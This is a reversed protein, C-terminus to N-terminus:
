SDGNANRARRLVLKEVEAKVKPHELIPLELPDGAARIKRAFDVYLIRLQALLEEAEILEALAEDLAQEDYILCGSPDFSSQLGRNDNNSQVMGPQNAEYELLDAPNILTIAEPYSDARAWIWHAFHHRHKKARDCIVKVADLFDLEEQTLTVRAVARVADAQARANRMSAYMAAAPKARAGLMSVMITGYLNEILSGLAICRAAKASLHPKWEAVWSLVQVKPRPESGSLRKPPM